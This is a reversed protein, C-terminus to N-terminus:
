VRSTRQWSNLKIARPCTDKNVGRVEMMIEINITNTYM